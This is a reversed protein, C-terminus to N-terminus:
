APAKDRRDDPGKGKTEGPDRELAEAPVSAQRLRKTIQGVTPCNKINYNGTYSQVLIILNPDYTGLIAKPDQFMCEEKKVKYLKILEEPDASTSTFDKPFLLYKVKPKEEVAPTM